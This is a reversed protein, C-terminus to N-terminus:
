LGYGYKASPCLLLVHCAPPISSNCFQEEGPMDSAIVYIQQHTVFKTSESSLAVFLIGFTVMLVNAQSISFGCNINNKHFSM